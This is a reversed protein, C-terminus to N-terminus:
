VDGFPAHGLVAAELDLTVAALDVQTHRDDRHGEAFTDDQTDEVARRDLEFEVVQAHLAQVVFAEGLQDAPRVADDEDGAGRAGSFGRGEVGGEAVDDAGLELDKGDLVRDLIVEVADVLGLNKGLDPKGEGALQAAEQTM